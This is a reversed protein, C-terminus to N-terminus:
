AWPLFGRQDAGPGRGVDLDRGLASSFHHCSSRTVLNELILSYRTCIYPDVSYFDKMGWNGYTNVAWTGLCSIYTCILM